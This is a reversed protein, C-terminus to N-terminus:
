EAAFVNPNRKIKATAQLENTYGVFEALAARQSTRQVLQARLMDTQDPASAALTGPHVASVAFVAADGNALAAAGGTEKGAVPRAAHFIAKLLEPPVSSDTGGRRGLAPASVAKVGAAAAVAALSQGAAVKAAAAQAAAEAAKRAFEQRVSGEVQARVDELSRQQAPKHDTVRVVVVRDDGLSIAQSNQRQGLVEPGFAADILKRDEGLAGGGQRTFGEVTQVSLGLKKGVSDLESLAAFSEDALQQSKEYFTNQAQEKRYDAELEARVEDFGRQHPPEVDDLRIIHYGFQTKVPGRVEGKQMGFVADAFAKVYAERTAWGLDGGAQKSGPDDSNERALKAFDEGAKVRAAIQEAKKAAAVDDKGAEILIHSARRREADVFREPAVQDYYKHLTEDNVQVRAAVDALSLSLYQLSVTEPTMFEAKHKAYWAAVDEPTVQTEAAFSAAPLVAYAVDRTEGELALRRKLEGETAFASVAIANRLQGTELDRRFDREFEPESRGQQRLLAAYRDRSFKGDVQLAPIAYIEDALEKDGVRYGMEHARQVLLERAVFDELLKQQESKVLAPPLENRIQQQLETQREQWAKRVQGLPISEGNVTVAAKNVTSEFRIGWFIFVVAIAGLFFIAFWGSIKDRIQQLM